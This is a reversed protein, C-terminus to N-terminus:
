RGGGAVAQQHQRDQQVKNKHQQQESRLKPHFTCERLNMDELEERLREMRLWHQKKQAVSAQLRVIVAPQQHQQQLCRYPDGIDDHHINTRLGHSAASSSSPPPPPGWANRKRVPAADSRAYQRPIDRARSMRSSFYKSSPYGFRNGVRHDPKPYFVRQDETSGYGGNMSSDISCSSLLAVDGGLLKEHERSSDYGSSDTARPSIGSSTMALSNDDNFKMLPVHSTAKDVRKVAPADLGKFEDRHYRRHQMSVSASRLSTEDTMQKRTRGSGVSSDRSHHRGGRNFNDRLIAFKTRTAHNDFRSFLYELSEDDAGSMGHGQDDDTCSSLGSSVNQVAGLISLIFVTVCQVSVRGECRFDLACWVSDLLDRRALETTYSVHQHNKDVSRGRRIGNTTAPRRLLEPFSRSSSFDNMPSHSRESSSGSSLSSPLCGIGILFQELMSRYLFLENADDRPKGSNAFTALEIGAKVKKQIRRILHLRSNESVINAKPSHRNREVHVSDKCPVHRVSYLFQKLNVKYAISM